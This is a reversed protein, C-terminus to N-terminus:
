VSSRDLVNEDNVSAAAFVQLLLIVLTVFLFINLQEGVHVEGVGQLRCNLSEGPSHSYKYRIATLSKKNWSNTWHIKSGKSAEPRWVM